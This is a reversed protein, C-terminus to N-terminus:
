DIAIEQVPYACNPLHLLQLTGSGSLHYPKVTNM